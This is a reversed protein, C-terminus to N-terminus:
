GRETPESEDDEGVPVEQQQEWLDAADAESSAAPAAPPPTPEGTVPLEQEVADALPVETGHEDPNAPM